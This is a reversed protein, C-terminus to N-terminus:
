NFLQYDPLTEQSSLVSHLQELERGVKDNVTARSGNKMYTGFTSTIEQVETDSHQSMVLFNAVIKRFLLIRIRLRIIQSM